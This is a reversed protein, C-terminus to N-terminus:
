HAANARKQEEARVIADFRKFAPYGEFFVNVIWKWWLSSFTPVSHMKLKARAMVWCESIHIALVPWFIYPQFTQCFWAFRPSHLLLFDGLPSGPEFNSRQSYAILVTAVVISILLEFPKRPPKYSKVTINSRGLAAIAEADMAVVRPRAEKWSTMPPNIPILYGSSQRKTRIRLAEFSIDVLQANRASFSSLNSYHELYRVLSDQHDNNMHNIIRQRIADDESEM